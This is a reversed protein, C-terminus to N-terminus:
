GRAERAPGAVQRMLRAIWAPAYRSDRLLQRKDAASLTRQLKAIQKVDVNREGLWRLAQIVTGSVRGATVMQRPTTNKFVIERKGVRVVRGPGDTLFVQRVPVQESLGLMNAAHAGSPQLRTRERVRLARVISDTSPLLPGLAADLRPYDYVGRTLRRIRGAAAARALATDVASRSGLDLFDAPTFVSGRRRKSIRVFVQRDISQTLQRQKKM